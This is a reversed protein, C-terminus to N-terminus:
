PSETRLDGFKADKLTKARTLGGHDIRCTLVPKLWTAAQSTSLSPAAQELQPLRSELADRVAVPIQSARLTGVYTFQGDVISGLLISAIRGQTDKVYGVIACEAQRAGVSLPLGQPPGMKEAQIKASKEPTGTSVPQKGMAAKYSDLQKDSVQGQTKAIVTPAVNKRIHMDAEPVEFVASYRIGGILVLSSLSATLGWAVQWLRWADAPLDRITSKWIECPKLVVDFPGYRDSNPVTSLFVTVQAVGVAVVGVVAEAITWILRSPGDAPLAVAATLTAVFIAIVGAYLIRAWNPVAQLMGLYTDAATPAAQPAAPPAHEIVSGMKPHYFCNPCWPSVGWSEKSGCQPCGNAAIEAKLDVAKTETAASSAVEKARTGVTVGVGKANLLAALQALKADTVTPHLLPEHADGAANSATPPSPAVATANDGGSDHSDVSKKSGFLAFTM